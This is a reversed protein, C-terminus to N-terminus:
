KICKKLLIFREKEYRPKISYRSKSCKLIHYYKSFLKMTDVIDVGFPPGGEAILKDIPLLIGVLVGNSNLLKYSERIYDHRKNPLIACFFTYEIFIDFFNYYNSLKFYDKHLINIKLKENEAKARLRNIAITSFDIAYVDHGKHALYLADHGNGCGPIIIKKKTKITKFWNVIIPTPGGIDWSAENNHYKLDWFKPSMPNDTSLSESM